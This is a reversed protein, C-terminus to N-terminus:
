LLDEMGQLVTSVDNNLEQEIRQMFSTDSQFNRREEEWVRGENRKEEEEPDEANVAPAALSVVLAASAVVPVPTSVAVVVPEDETTEETEMRQSSESISLGEVSVDLGILLCNLVRM